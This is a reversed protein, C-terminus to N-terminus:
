KESRRIRYIRQGEETLPNERHYKARKKASKEQIDSLEHQHKELEEVYSIVCDNINVTANLDAGEEEQRIAHLSIACGNIQQLLRKKDIRVAKERVLPEAGQVGAFGM